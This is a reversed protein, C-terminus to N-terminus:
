QEKEYIRIVFQATITLDREAFLRQEGGTGTKYAYPTMLFLAKREEESPTFTSQITEEHIKRLHTDLEKRRNRYPHEYLVQKMELLHDEGPTVFLFHGGPKLVREIEDKAFPAFCTLVFDVAEDELPLSFISALLYRTKKDAKAAHNLADKSLDIGCKDPAALQRTYYGEGCALDALTEPRYMETFERLRERLFGYAGSELFRTRAQVMTKNDGHGPHNSRYLNVYGSRALDFSHHNM